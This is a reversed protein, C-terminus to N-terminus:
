FTLHPLILSTIYQQNVFVILLNSKDDLRANLYDSIM